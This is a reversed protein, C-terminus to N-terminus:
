HGGTVTYGQRRLELALAAEVLVADRYELGDLGSYLHPVPELGYKHVYHSSQIGELHRGLREEIKLGTLGVYLCPMTSVSNPNISLVFDDRRVEPRLRIVYVKHNGGRSRILQHVAVFGALAQLDQSSVGNLNMSQVQEPTANMSRLIGAFRQYEERELQSIMSPVKERVCIGSLADRLIAHPTANTIKEAWHWCEDPSPTDKEYEWRYTKGGHVLEQDRIM